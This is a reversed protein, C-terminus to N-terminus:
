PKDNKGPGTARPLREDPHRGVAEAYRRYDGACIDMLTRFAAPHRLFFPVLARVAEEAAQLAEERRGLESLRNGLNHLSLALYPLFKPRCRALKRYIALAEEIAKLAEERRGLDGLRLGLNNALRAREGAIWLKRRRPPHAAFHNITKVTAALAVERLALSSLYEEFACWDMLRKALEGTANKEIERALVLGIPDGTEVAVDLASTALSGLRRSFASRLWEEAEPRRQALRTLVTLTAHASRKADVLARTAPLVEQWSSRLAGPHIAPAGPRITM